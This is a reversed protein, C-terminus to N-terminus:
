NKYRSRRMPATKEMLSVVFIVMIIINLWIPINVVLILLEVLTVLIVGLIILVIKNTM